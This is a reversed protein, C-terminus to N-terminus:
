KYAPLGIAKEVEPKAAETVAKAVRRDNWLLAHGLVFMVALGLQVIIRPLPQVVPWTKESAM